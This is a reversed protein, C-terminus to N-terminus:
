GSGLVTRILAELKSPEFPKVLYDRAGADLGQKVTEQQSAASLM